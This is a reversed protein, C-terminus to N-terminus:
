NNDKAALVRDLAEQIREAQPNLSQAERLMTAADDLRGAEAYALGFNYLVRWNGPTANYAREWAPIAEGWRKLGMLTRGIAADIGPVSADLQRTRWYAELGETPRQLAILVKGKHMTARANKPNLEISKEVHELATKLDGRRAHIKSLVFQGSAHNPDRNLAKELVSRARDSKGAQDLTAALLGAVELDYPDRAILTQLLAIGELLQGGEIRNRGQQLMARQTIVSALVEAQWPNRVRSPSSNAGKAFEAAAEDPRGMAQYAQGLLYPPTNWHPAISAANSLHPVAEEYRRRALYAQAIEVYPSAERPRLEIVERFFVEAEDFANREMAIKGLYELTPAHDPRLEAVEQFAKEASENDGGLRAVVAGHFRWRALSPDAQVALAYCRLAFDRYGNAEYLMGLRGIVAPDHPHNDLQSIIERVKGVLASDAADLDDPIPISLQPTTTEEANDVHTIPASTTSPSPTNSSMWFRYGGFLLTALGVALIIVARGRGLTDRPNSESDMAEAQTEPFDQHPETM